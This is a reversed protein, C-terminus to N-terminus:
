KLNVWKKSFLYLMLFISVTLFVMMPLGIPLFTGTYFYGVGALTVATLILRAALALATARGKSNEVITLSLPFLINIPFVIAIAMVVMVATILMPQHIGLVVLGMIFLTSLITLGIGVNLCRKQGFYYLLRPSSFCSIAFAASLAGQYFGFAKLSIGLNQMYLIPAMGVFVWWPTVLFCILGIFTMQQTSRLLPWYAKLSLSITHDGQHNPIYLYGMILCFISLILLLDFNGQWGFYLNIYSGVVPAFAMALTTAGGLVGMMAAQKEIPYNDSIIPYALIAPGAMGIGQLIRGALLVPYNPAYACLISGIILVALSILIVHRRNYRDGLVGSFFSCFCYALLNASLMFQVSFPSLHFIKQLEPFSPIFLDIEAGSLIEILLITFFLLM